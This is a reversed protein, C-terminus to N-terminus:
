GSTALSQLLEIFERQIAPWARTQAVGRGHQGMRQWQARATIAEITTALFAEADRYPALFGSEGDRVLEAAAAYDYGVVPLGSALAEAVVNGYTESESPFVFLDASAYHAALLEGRQAGRFIVDPHLQRLRSEGPGSGVIILRLQPLAARAHHYSRILLDINKEQAIRGVYIMALEGEALGWARRLESDRREPNFLQTDVGRSEVQLRQFGRTMLERRLSETPVLTVDCRNHFDRLYRALPAQLWGMHYARSYRDFQTHYGSAAPIGLLRAAGLAAQGLPGETAIYLAHPRHVRWLRALQSRSAFGFRMNRYMPLPIGTVLHEARAGEPRARDDKHQCPRVIQVRHGAELLGQEYRQLTNAVGNIEPPYTETILAVRLRSDRAREHNAVAQELPPTAPLRTVRM